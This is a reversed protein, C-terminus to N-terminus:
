SQCPMLYQLWRAVSTQLNIIWPNPLRLITFSIKMIMASIFIITLLIKSLFNSSSLRPALVVFLALLSDKDSM